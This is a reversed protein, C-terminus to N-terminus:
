RLQKLFFWSPEMRLGRVLWARSEFQFGHGAGRARKEQASDDKSNSQTRDGLCVASEAGSSAPEPQSFLM